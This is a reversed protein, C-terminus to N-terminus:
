RVGQVVGEVGRVLVREVPPHEGEEEVDHRFGGVEVGWAVEFEGEAIEDSVPFEEM